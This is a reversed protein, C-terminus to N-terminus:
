YLVCKFIMLLYLILACTFNQLLILIADFVRVCIMQVAIFSMVMVEGILHSATHIDRM